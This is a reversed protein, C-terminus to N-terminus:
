SYAIGMGAANNGNGNGNGHHQLFLDPVSQHNCPSGQGRIELFRGEQSLLLAGPKSVAHQWWATMTHHHHALIVITVPVKVPRVGKRDCQLYQNAHVHGLFIVRIIKASNEAKFVHFVSKSFSLLELRSAQAIFCNM